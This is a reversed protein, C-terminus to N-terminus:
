SHAPYDTYGRDDGGYFSSRDGEALPAGSRLRAPLDPNAIFNAGFSLLDTTGDEIVKLEQPGTPTWGTNPNLIFTNPWAARLRNTLGRDASEMLHLYALDLPALAAVLPLYTADFDPHDNIDNFGSGPSIRLGVNEPGIAASVTAAVEVAFRIRGEASGGWGDARHNAQPSLFQHILYGNAGHLEIGDFGAAIANRAATVFDQITTNIEDEPLEQPVVFDQLGKRTFV